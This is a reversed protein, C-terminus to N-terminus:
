QPLAVSFYFSGERAIMDGKLPNGGRDEPKPTFGLDFGYSKVPAYIDAPTVAIFGRTTNATGFDFMMPKGVEGLAPGPFLILILLFQPTKIVRLLHCIPHLALVGTQLLETKSLRNTPRLNM